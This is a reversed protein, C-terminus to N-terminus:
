DPTSPPLDINPTENNDFFTVNLDVSRYPEIWENWKDMWEQDIEPLPYDEQFFSIYVLCLAAFALASLILKILGKLVAFLLLISLLVLIFSLLPQSLIQEITEEM